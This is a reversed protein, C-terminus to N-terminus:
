AQTLAEALPGLRIQRSRALMDKAILCDKEMQAILAEVGDFKAEPRIFNIFEIEATDGYLDGSFDFLHTELLARGGGFTPRVGFSAVGDHRSKVGDHFRRVRVAYIGHALDTEPSLAMNATPFGLERGRRDGSIVSSRVFWWYGLAQAATAVNGAQLLARIASSSYVREGDGARELITVGLGHRSGAERLFAPTGQRAKGFHFNFGAVVHSVDLQKALVTAVFDEASTSAFAADFRMNVVFDLGCAELLELKVDLPTLPFLPDQPRFFRRPHPTFIMAGVPRGLDRAIRMTQSLVAQHGRHVGDFNGLALVAGACDAPMSQPNDLVRM